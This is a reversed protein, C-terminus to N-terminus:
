ILRQLRTKIQESTDEDPSCRIAREWMDAAQHRFGKQEYLTGLTRLAAFCHPDLEIVNEFSRIALYAMGRRKLYLVGLQFHLKPSLPDVDVAERFAAIAGDLDGARSLELAARYSKFATASLRRRPGNPQQSVSAFVREVTRWLESLSFPKELFAEVQLAERLDEAIRWGRHTASTMIIRIQRFRDSGKLKQAVDFGHVEPLDVDLLLLNPPQRRALSLVELGRHAQGVRMGRSRLMRAVLECQQEDHDAVLAVLSSVPRFAATPPEASKKAPMNSPAPTLRM